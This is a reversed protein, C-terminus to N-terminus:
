PLDELAEAARSLKQVHHVLQMFALAALDSEFPDSDKGLELPTFCSKTRAGVRKLMKKLM